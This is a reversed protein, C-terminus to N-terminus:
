WQCTREEDPTHTLVYCQRKRQVFRDFDEEPGPPHVLQQLEYSAAAPAQYWDKFSSHQGQQESQSKRAFDRLEGRLVVVTAARAGAQRVTRGLEGPRLDAVFEIAKKYTVRTRKKTNKATPAQCPGTPVVRSAYDRSTHALLRATHSPPPTSLSLSLPWVGISDILTPVSLKICDDQIGKKVTLNARELGNNDTPAGPHHHARCWGQKKPQLYSTQLTRLVYVEGHLTDVVEGKALAQPLLQKAKSKTTIGHHREAFAIGQEESIPVNSWKRIFLDIAVELEAKTPMVHLVRLDDVVLPQNLKNLFRPGYDNAKAGGV